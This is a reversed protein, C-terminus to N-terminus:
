EGLLDAMQFPRNPFAQAALTDGARVRFATAYGEPGPDRYVAIEERWLDVLWVEPIGHRAYLPLKVRLDYRLSTDAIDILRLADKPGPLARRYEGPRPRLLLFDRQPETHQDLRVPNQVSVLTLDGLRTVLCHTLPVVEAAHGPGIPTTEVIEGDIVEVRHDEVLIGARAMRQYDQVTFRWRHVAQAM